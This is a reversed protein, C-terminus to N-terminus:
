CSYHCGKLSQNHSAFLLSPPAAKAAALEMNICVCHWPPRRQAPHGVAKLVFHSNKFRGPGAKRVKERGWLTERWLLFGFHSFNHFLYHWNTSVVYLLSLLRAATRLRMWANLLLMVWLILHWPSNIRSLKRSNHNDLIKSIFVCMRTQLNYSKWLEEHCKNFM